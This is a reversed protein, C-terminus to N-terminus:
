QAPPAPPAPVSSTSATAPPKVVGTTVEFELLGTGTDADSNKLSSTLWVNDVLELDALRFLLKAVAKHGADPVDDTADLIFGTMILGDTENAELTGLWAESPLVLSLENTIRAWDVRSALATNATAQLTALETEKMEFVKFAEAQARVQQSTELNAQLEDNRQSVMWQLFAWAIGIVVFVIAAALLVWVFRQEFRRKESIEPPLLNIRVM